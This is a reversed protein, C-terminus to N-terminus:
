LRQCTQPIPESQTFSTPLNSIESPSRKHVRVKHLLRQAEPDDRPLCSFVVKRQQSKYTDPYSHHCCTPIPNKSFCIKSGQEIVKTRLKPSIRNQSHVFCDKVLTYLEDACSSCDKVKPILCRLCKSDQYYHRCSSECSQIENVCDKCDSMEEMKEVVCSFTNGSRELEEESSSSSRESNRQEQSSERSSSSFSEHSQSEWRNHRRQFMHSVQCSPSSCIQSLESPYECGSERITYKQYFSRVDSELEHEPNRFEDMPELDYHGCLGCQINRYMPSIKINCAYGDFYVRVGEQPLSVKVYPGSRSIRAVSRENHSIHQPEQISMQEGNVKVKVSDYEHSSPSLEIVHSRVVIKVKKQSSESSKRKMLVAFNESNCDKALVSYCTSIPVQYRVNDFTQVRQSSVHCMPHSGYTVSSLWDSFSTIRRSSRKINLSKYRMPVPIDKFITNQKPTKITINAYRNSKADLTLQIKIKNSPNQVEIDNVESNWYWYTQLARLLKSTTNKVYPSVNQYECQAKYSNLKAARSLSQYLSVPSCSEMNNECEERSQWSFEPDTETLRRQERSRQAQVKCSVHNQENCNRGWSTKLHAVVKKGALQSWSYPTEPYMVEGEMCMKFPNIHHQHTSCSREFVSEMKCLRRNAGCTVKTEWEMKNSKQGNGKTSVEMKLVSEYSNSSQYNRWQSHIAEEESSESKLFENFESSFSPSLSESKQSFLKGSVKTIVEKPMESTPRTTVTLKNPGSLPCFPTSSLKMTPTHHWRGRINLQVGLFKESLEEVKKVTESHEIKNVRTWEEGMVTKEEPEKWRNLSKPWELTYTLPRTELSLWHVKERPLNFKTSFTAPSTNLDVEFKAHIPTHIKATGVVKLGSNVIPSWVEVNSIITSVISPKTEKLELSIKSWRNTIKAKVQGSMQMVTPVKLSFSLPMGLTTPIKYSMEHVMAAKCLRFTLGSELSKEIERLDIKGESIFDSFYESMTEMNFPLIGFDQDKHKLYFFGQANNSSWSRPSTKLKRWLNKLEQRPSNTRSSRPERSLIEDLDM